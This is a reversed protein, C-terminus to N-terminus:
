HHKVPSKGWQWATGKSAKQQSGSYQVQAVGVGGGTGWWLGGAEFAITIDGLEEFDRRQPMQSAGPM